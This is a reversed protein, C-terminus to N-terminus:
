GGTGPEDNSGADGTGDGFLDSFGKNEANIEDLLEKFVKARVEATIDIRKRETPEWGEYRQFCLKAAAPDGEAARKLLGQDVRMIDAAYRQRRVEMAEAEIEALEHPKFYQYIQHKTKKRLIVPCYESRRVVENDPNALYEVIRLRYLRINQQRRVAQSTEAM